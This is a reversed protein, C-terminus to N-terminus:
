RQGRPMGLVAVPTHAIQMNLRQAPDMAFRETVRRTYVRMKSVLDTAVRDPM